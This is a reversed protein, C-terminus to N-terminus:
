VCLWLHCILSGPVKGETDIVVSKTGGAGVDSGVLYDAM